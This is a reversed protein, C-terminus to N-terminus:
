KEMRLWRGSYAELRIAAGPVLTEGTVPDSVSRYVNRKTNLYVTKAEDDNIFFYHDAGPHALRYVVAGSCAYPSELGGMAADVLWKELEAHGPQFVAFSADWALMVASGKGVGNELIAPEGTQFWERTRATTPKLTEIFGDMRKGRLVRPVNNSYQLDALQAGFLQEFLTGPMSKRVKGTETFAAGPADLVVRGGQQAYDLLLRLLEDSLAIQGALYIVKYRPALGARLDDLTVYEWPINANMLARSVGVRARMPYHRYHDRQRVSLAAWIADNDWNVLVGVQPEKHAEWIEDRLARAAQTIKGARIARPTPQLNRDLLAYEGAEFGAERFNWTWVGAGKFGAALYSLFLQTMTGANTTFGPTSEAERADWGKSGTLQQPGGTSEWPASWGGKFLDHAFSAQMYIPRAVENDVEGFHWAFHISPYFTGVDLQTQALDEMKTARWAFPLFLGMEGGTRTPAWPNGIPREAIAEAIEATHFDAKYRLVDRIRGYERGYSRDNQADAAMRDVEADVEEWSAFPDPTIGVEGLNWNDNIGAPSAYTTRLWRKFHAADNPRLFPDPTHVFDGPQKPKRSQLFGANGIDIGKKLVETQYARMKPNARIEAIPTDKPIGLEALLAETIPAWGGEGYWFPIIGEEFAVEFIRRETWEPTPMTQKLNDFGLQKMLRFHGRMDAETMGKWPLFVVGFPMPRIQRFRQQTPSDHLGRYRTLLFEDEQEQARLHPACMATMLVVLVLSRLLQHHVTTM